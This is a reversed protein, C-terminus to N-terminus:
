GAMGLTEHRCAKAHACAQVPQGLRQANIAGWNDFADSLGFAGLRTVPYSSADSMSLPGYRGQLQRRVPVHGMDVGGGRCRLGGGRCRVLDRHGQRSMSTAKPSVVLTRAARTAEAVRSGWGEIGLRAGARASGVRGVWGARLGADVGVVAGRAGVVAGVPEVVGGSVPGGARLPGVVVAPGTLAWGGVVAPVVVLLSVNEVKPAVVVWGGTVPGVVVAAGGVVAGVVVVMGVVVVVSAVVVVVSGGVLVSGGVVVSAAFSDGHALRRGPRGLLKGLPPGQDVADALAIAGLHHGPVLDRSSPRDGGILDQHGLPDALLEAVGRGRQDAINSADDRDKPHIRGFGAHDKTDAAKAISAPRHGKPSSSPRQGVPDDLGFLEHHQEVQGPGSSRQL